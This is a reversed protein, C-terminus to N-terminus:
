SDQQCRDNLIKIRSYIFQYQHSDDRTDAYYLQIAPAGPNGPVDKIQWDQATVPLWDEKQGLCWSSMLCSFIALCCLWRTM